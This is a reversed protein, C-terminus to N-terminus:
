IEGRMKKDTLEKLKEEAQKMMAQTVDSPNRSVKELEKEIDEEKKIPQELSPQELLQKKISQVQLEAEGINEIINENTSINAEKALAKGELVAKRVLLDITEDVAYGIFVALNLSEIAAISINDEYEAIDIDLVARELIEGNEYTLVINLGIEMPEMKLKSMLEANKANIEAGAKVLLKESKISIKGGEVSTKIGLAGLEGIMPGPTFDTPGALVIIDIPAIDGPKAPANSKGKKLLQFLVFPDEDAFLLAPIGILKEKIPQLHVDGLEDLAIKIFRKKTYKLIVKGRLSSKIKMLNSAPLKELNVVAFIKHKKVLEKISEVENRKRETVHAQFQKM